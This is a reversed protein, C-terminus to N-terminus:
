VRVGRRERMNQLATAFQRQGTEAFPEAEVDELKEVGPFEMTITSNSLDIMGFQSQLEDLPIVAEPGAEGILAATPETVIGGEALALTLAQIGAGAAILLAGGALLGPAMPATAIGLLAAAGEALKLAGEAMLAGGLAMIISKFIANGLEKWAERASMTGEFQSAFFGGMAAAMGTSASEVVAKTQDMALVEAMLSGKRLKEEEIFKKTGRMKDEADIAILKEQIAKAATASNKVEQNKLKLNDRVSKADIAKKKAAGTRWIAEEQALVETGLDVQKQSFEAWSEAMADTMRQYADIPGVEWVDIYFTALALAAEKLFEFTNLATVALAGFRTGWTDIVDMAFQVSATFANIVTTTLWVLGPGMRQGVIEAADNMSNSLKDIDTALGRETRAMDRSINDVEAFVAGMDKAAETSMGLIRALQSVGSTNGEYALALADSAVKLDVNGAVALDMAKENLAIATNFDGTKTVLDDLSRALEFKNFRTAAEAGRLYQEVEGRLSDFGKGMKEIKGTILTLSRDFKAFETIGTKVFSIIKTAAFAGAMAIGIKGITKKANDGFSTVQQKGKDLGAKLKATEAQLSVVLKDEAM